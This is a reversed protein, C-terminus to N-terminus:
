TVVGVLKITVQQSKELYNIHTVGHKCRYEVLKDGDLYQLIFSEKALFPILDESFEVLQLLIEKDTPVIGQICPFKRVDLIM